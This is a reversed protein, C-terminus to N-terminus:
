LHVECVCAYKKVCEHVNKKVKQKKNLKKNGM